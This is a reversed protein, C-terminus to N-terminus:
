PRRLLKVRAGARSPRADRKQGGRCPAVDQASAARLPAADDAARVEPDSVDLRRLSQSLEELLGAFPLRAVEARPHLVIAWGRPAQPLLRALLARTRRRIRNRVVAGGLRRPVTIGFQAPADAARGPLRAAVIQFHAPRLRRGLRYVSQFEATRHM